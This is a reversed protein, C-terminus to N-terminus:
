SRRLLPSDGNARVYLLLHVNRQRRWTWASSEGQRPITVLDGRTDGAGGPALKTQLCVDLFLAKSVSLGEIEEQM